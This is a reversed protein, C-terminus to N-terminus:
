AWSRVMPVASIIVSMRSTAKGIGMTSREPWVQRRFSCSPASNLVDMARIIMVPIRMGSTMEFRPRCCYRVIHAELSIKAEAKTDLKTTMPDKMRSLPVFFFLHFDVLTESEISRVEVRRGVIAADVPLSSSKNRKKPQRIGSCRCSLGSFRARGAGAASGAILEGKASFSLRRSVGCCSATSPLSPSTLGVRRVDSVKGRGDGEGEVPVLGLFFTEKKSTPPRSSFPETLGGEGEIDCERDPVRTLLPVECVTVVSQAVVIGVGGCDRRPDRAKKDSMPAVRVGEVVLRLSMVM